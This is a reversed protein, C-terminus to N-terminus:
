RSCCPWTPGPWSSSTTSPSRGGTSSRPTPPAGWRRTSTAWTTRAPRCTPCTASGPRTSRSLAAAWAKRQAETLRQSPPGALRAAAEARVWRVPDQLLPGLLRALRGSRGSEARQVATVRLLPEPDSLAKEVRRARRRSGPLRLAARGRHGPGGGPLAPGRRAPRPRAEAGPERARGAAIVTGYHPKRKKGYWGDYKAQVWSLPRDAHCGPPAAPTPCASPRPSTPARCACPTIAGSTSWWSTRAPCTAPSASCAPARSGRGSRRTSTTPPRTTPTPGTAARASSPQGGRAAQGLPRRPLRRLARRERADQEAHLRAM